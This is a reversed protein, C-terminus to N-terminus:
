DLEQTQSVEIAKEGNWRFIQAKYKWDWKETDCEDFDYSDDDPISGSRTAKLLLNYLGANSDTPIYLNEGYSVACADSISFTRPLEVLKKKEDLWAFFIENSGIMCAQGGMDLRVVFKVNHLLVNDIIKADNYNSEETGIDYSKRDIIKNNEIAKVTCKHRYDVTRDIGFVFKINGRRMQKYSLTNSWIWGSVKENVSVSLWKGRFGDIITEDGDQNASIIEVEQGATLKHVIESKADPASRVNAADAYVYYKDGAQIYWDLGYNYGEQQAFLSNLCLVCITLLTLKLNKM